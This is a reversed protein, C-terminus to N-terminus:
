KMGRVLTIAIEYPMVQHSSEIAEDRDTSNEATNAAINRLAELVNLVDTKSLGANPHTTM